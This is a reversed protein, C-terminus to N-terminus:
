NMIIVYINKLKNKKGAIVFGLAYGFPIACFFIAMWQSKKNSPACRDIFPPAICLFSAEGIGTIGRSILLTYYGISLGSGLAALSWIGLGVSMTTFPEFRKLSFAFIPAAVVYGVM